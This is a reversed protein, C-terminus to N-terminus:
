TPRRDADSLLRISHRELDAFDLRALDAKRRSYTAVFLEFIDFILARHPAVRLNLLHETYEALTKDRFIRLPDRHPTPVRGLNIRLSFVAAPTQESEIRQLLERLERHHERQVASGPTWNIAARLEWALENPTVPPCPAPIARVEDIELGASRIADWVNLLHWAIDPRALAAMMELVEPRRLELMQDLVASMCERQLDESEYQDLVAFAPNLDAAVANEKLLRTCFGHITSIWANEVEAQKAPNHEFAAAIKAKMNAAAKETFTIALIHRLDFAHQEVLRYFREVLVTTKGSGPGAVVCVDQNQFAIASQQLPTFDTPM